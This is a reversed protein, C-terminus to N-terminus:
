KTKAWWFDNIEMSEKKTTITKQPSAYQKEQDVRSAGM